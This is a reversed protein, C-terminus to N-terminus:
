KISWLLDSLFCVLAMLVASGVFALALAIYWQNVPEFLWNVFQKM